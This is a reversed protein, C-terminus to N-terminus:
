QLALEWHKDWAATRNSAIAPDSLTGDKVAKITDRSKSEAHGDWFCVNVIDHARSHRYAMYATDTADRREDYGAVKFYHDSHQPQIFQNMADAFMIKDSASRVQNLKVVGGFETAADWKKAVPKTIVVMNAYNLHRVNYGYCYAASAGKNNTQLDIAQSAQPCILGPPFKGARGNGAVWEQINMTSRFGNNDIWNARVKITTGPFVDNANGMIGPVVNGRFQAVYMMQGQGLSRLNALCKVKNASERAKSLAPLLISILLAIIGIVVLLEVLTFGPQSSAPRIRARRITRPDGGLPALDWTVLWGTVSIIPDIMQFAASM